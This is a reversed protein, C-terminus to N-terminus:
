HPQVVVYIFILMMTVVLGEQLKLICYIHDTYNFNMVNFHMYYDLIIPLIKVDNKLFQTHNVSLLILPM